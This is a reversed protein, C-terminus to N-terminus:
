TLLIEHNENTLCDALCKYGGNKNLLNPKVWHLISYDRVRDVLHYRIVLSKAQPRIWSLSDYSSIDDDFVFVIDQNEVRITKITCDHPVPITPLSEQNLYYIEKMEFFIADEFEKQGPTSIYDELNM